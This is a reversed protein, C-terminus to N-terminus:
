RIQLPQDFKVRLAGLRRPLLEALEHREGVVEHGAVEREGGAPVGVPDVLDGRRQGGPRELRDLGLAQEGAGDDVQVM